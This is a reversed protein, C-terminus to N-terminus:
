LKYSIGFLYNTGYRYRDYDNLWEGNDRRYARRIPANLIDRITISINFYKGLNKSVKFDLMHSPYEYIDPKDYLGPIVLKPGQLNYSVALALGISDLKGISDIKQSLIGNIIYPAQGFMTRSVHEQFAGQELEGNDKITIDYQDYTSRSNVLTINARFELSTYINMKGELEVGAVYSNEINQWTYANGTNILEIHNTFDKYFVSLSINDRSKFYSELRLDFNNINAIKLDSNGVV